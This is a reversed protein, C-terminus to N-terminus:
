DMSDLAFGPNDGAEYCEKAYKDKVLKDNRFSEIQEPSPKWWSYLRNPNAGLTPCDLFGDAYCELVLGWWEEFPTNAKTRHACKARNPQLSSKDHITTDM